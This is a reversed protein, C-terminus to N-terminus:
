ISNAKVMKDVSKGGKASLRLRERTHVELRWFGDSSEFHLFEFRLRRVFFASRFRIAPSRAYPSRTSM